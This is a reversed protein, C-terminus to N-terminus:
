GGEFDFGRGRKENLTDAKVERGLPLTCRGMVEKEWLGRM